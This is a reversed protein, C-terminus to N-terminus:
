ETPEERPLARRMLFGYVEYGLREYFRRAGENAASVDLIMREAGHERAWTEAAQMLRDGIGQGRWEPLVVIGLDASRVRRMAGGAVGTLVIAIEVMGVVRGDVTAVITQRSPDEAQRRRLFDASGARDPVEWAEPDIAAHHEASAQDLDVMAEFDALTAPRSEVDFTPM